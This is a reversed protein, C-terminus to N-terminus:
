LIMEVLMQLRRLSQARTLEDIYVRMGSMESSWGECHKKSDERECDADVEDSACNAPCLFKLGYENNSSDM